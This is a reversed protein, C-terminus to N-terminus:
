CAAGEAQVTTIDPILRSLRKHVGALRQVTKGL